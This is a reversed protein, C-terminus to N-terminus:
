SCYSYGKGCVGGCQRFIEQESVVTRGTRGRLGQSQSPSATDLRRIAHWIHLNGVIVVRDIESNGSRASKEGSCERSQFVATRRACRVDDRVTM